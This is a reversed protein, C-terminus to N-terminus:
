GALDFELWPEVRRNLADLTARMVAREPDSHVLAAGVLTEEGHATVVGVLVTAMAPDGAVSATVSDVGVILRNGTLQRLAAVTAEAVARLIGARTPVSRTEGTASRDGHRLTATVRVDSVDICTDLHHIEARHRGREADDEVPLAPPVSEEVRWTRRRRSGELAAGAADSADAAAPEDAEDDADTAAPEDAEDDADTAAPEDAEDDTDTDAPEDAEDDARPADGRESPEDSDDDEDSASGADTAEPADDSPEAPVISLPRVIESGETRAAPADAAPTDAAPGDDLGATLEDGAEIAESLVARAAESLLVRDGIVVVSEDGLDIHEVTGVDDPLGGAGTADAPEDQERHPAASAGESTASADPPTSGVTQAPETSLRPRIAGPDLVIGFRERLTAAIAWSVTPADEGNALRIRLRSKGTDPIQTVHAEEVGPVSAIARELEQHTPKARVAVAEEMEIVESGWEREAPQGIRGCVAGRGVRGDLTSGGRLSITIGQNRRRRLCPGVSGPGSWPVPATAKV